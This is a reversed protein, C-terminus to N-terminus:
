TQMVNILEAIESEVCDTGADPLMRYLLECNHRFIVEDISQQL